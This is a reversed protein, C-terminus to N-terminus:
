HNYIRKKEKYIENTMSKKNAKVIANEFSDCEKWANVYPSAPSVPIFFVQMFIISSRHNSKATLLRSVCLAVISRM